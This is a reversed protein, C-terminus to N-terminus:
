YGISELYRRSRALCDFSDEGYCDDQEVAAYEVGCAAAVELLEVYDMGGEGIPAFRREKDPTMILDKLHIVHIRNAYKKLFSAPSVGAAQLWHLDPLLGFEEPSTSETIIEIPTKGGALRLFELHHNHYIFQLGSERIKKTAPAIETLFGRVEEETAMKRYIGLGIYPIGLLKHEAILADTDGIIREYPSHTACASLGNRDLEERLFELRCPGFGSVQVNDYGLAKVKKLTEAIDAETKTHARLTYLQASIMPKM